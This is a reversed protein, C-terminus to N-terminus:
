QDKKPTTSPRVNGLDITARGCPTREISSFIGYVPLFYSFLRQENATKTSSTTGRESATGQTLSVM